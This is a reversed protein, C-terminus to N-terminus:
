TLWVRSLLLCGLRFLNLKGIVHARSGVDSAASPRLLLSMLTWVHAVPRPTLQNGAACADSSPSFLGNGDLMPLRTLRSM